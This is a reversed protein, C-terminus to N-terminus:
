SLRAWQGGKIEYGTWQQEAPDYLGYEGIIVLYADDASRPHFDCVRDRMQRFWELWHAVETPLLYCVLVKLGAYWHLLKWFEENPYRGNEHEIVLHLYLPLDHCAQNLDGGEWKTGECPTRITDWACLDIHRFERRCELRGAPHGKHRSVNEIVKPLFDGLMFETWSGEEDKPQERVYDCFLRTFAEYFERPEFPPLTSMEVNGKGTPHERPANCLWSVHHKQISWPALGRPCEHMNRNGSGSRQRRSRIQCEAVAILDLNHM